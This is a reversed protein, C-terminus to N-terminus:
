DCLKVRFNGNVYNSDSFFADIKGAVTSDEPNYETIEVAGGSTIQNGPFNVQTSFGLETLGTKKKVSFSIRHGSKSFADYSCADGEPEGGYIELRMEDAEYKDQAALGAVGHWDLGVVKGQVEQDKFSYQYTSELERDDDFLSFCGCCGILIIFVISRAHFVNRHLLNNLRIANM